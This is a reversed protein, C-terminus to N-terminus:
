HSPAPSPHGSEHYGAKIADAESMYKGEKTKGYYVDGEKHYVKTKTNVWVDGPNHPADGPNSEAAAPASKPAAAAPAPTSKAAPAAPAAAAPAAAPAAAAPGITVLPTIKKITSAPVGAKSLDAIASYPRGAVIKKATAPGVGPLTELDTLSASNLDVPGAPKQDAAASLAPLAALLILTLGSLVKSKVSRM